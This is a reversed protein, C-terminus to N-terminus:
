RICARDSARSITGATRVDYSLMLPFLTIPMSILNPTMNYNHNVHDSRSKGEMVNNTSVVDGNLRIREFNM